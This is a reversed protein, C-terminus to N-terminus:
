GVLYKGPSHKLVSFAERHALALEKLSLDYLNDFLEVQNDCLESQRLMAIISKIYELKM